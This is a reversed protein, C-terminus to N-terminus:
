RTKEPEHETLDRSGQSEPSSKPLEAADVLKDFTQRNDDRILSTFWCKRVECGLGRRDGALTVRQVLLDAVTQTGVKSGVAAEVLGQGVPPFEVEEGEALLEVLGELHAEGDGLALAPLGGEGAPFLAMGDEGGAQHGDLALDVAADVGEEAEGGGVDGAEFVV